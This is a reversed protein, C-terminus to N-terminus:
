NTEAGKEADDTVKELRKASRFASLSWFLFVIGLLSFMLLGSGENTFFSVFGLSTFIIGVSLIAIASGRYAKATKQHTTKNREILTNVAKVERECRNKCATGPHVDVACDHCLARNCSKCLAIADKELHYYCKM